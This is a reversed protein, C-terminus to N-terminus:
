GTGGTLPLGAFDFAPVDSEESKIFVPGNFLGYACWDCDVDKTYRGICETAPQWGKGEVDPHKTRADNVSLVNKCAPCQFRWAHKDEGFLKKGEAEWEEITISSM